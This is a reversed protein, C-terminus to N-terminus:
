QGARWKELHVPPRALPSQTVTLGIPEAPRRYHLLRDAVDARRIARGTARAMVILAITQAVNVLGAVILVLEAQLFM